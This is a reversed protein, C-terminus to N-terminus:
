AKKYKLVAIKGKGIIITDGERLVVKTIREKEENIFTGNGSGLDKLVVKDGDRGIWAHERSVREDSIVIDNKSPDRGIKLGKTGIKFVKGAIEGSEGELTGFIEETALKTPRIEPPPSSAAPAVTPTEKEKRPKRLVIFLVVIVAIILVGIIALYYFPLGGGTTELQEQIRRQLNLISPFDKHLRNIEDLKAIAKKLDGKYYLELAQHWLKDFISEEGQPVGAARVFEKLANVPVLFNFGQVEQRTPWTQSAGLTLIGIVKGSTNVAPGGSNGHSAAADTQIVPMGKVDVKVGSITGTTVTPQRLSEKKLEAMDDVVGPYGIIYVHEGLQVLDSDGLPVTPLNRAEIKVISIDKGSEVDQAVGPIQELRGKAAVPLMPPSYTKIEAPYIKGNPLMVRLTKQIVIQCRSKIQDAIKDLKEFLQTKTLSKTKGKLFKNYVFQRLFKNKLIAENKEAYTQVVHGNTAIYGRHNIIFGSGMGGEQFKEKITKGNQDTYSVVAVVSEFIRVVAPELRTLLKTLETQQAEGPTNSCIITMFVVLLFAMSYKKM